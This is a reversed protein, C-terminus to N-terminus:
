SRNRRLLWDLAREFSPEAGVREHSPQPPFHTIDGGIFAVPTVYKYLGYKGHEADWQIYDNVQWAPHTYRCSGRVKTIVRGGQCTYVRLYAVDGGTM